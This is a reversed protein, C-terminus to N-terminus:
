WPRESMLQRGIKVVEAALLEFDDRRSRHNTIACRLAYRGRLTTSSIVAAGSEQVRLLLEENLANLQADDLGPASFRFCVINLELPAVLELHPSAEILSALYRAQEVNQEIVQAIKNVGHAKLAMWVKLARFGRTLQIGYEGFWTSGSALGRDGHALYAPTLAFTRHHAQPDRVLVCGVEFPLYVWKHLDFAVSDAREMGRVQSKLMPSVHALAGFAGDVHYWMGHDAAVDALEDLADVAGTNVTGACGVVCIPKFGEGVDQEIKRRLAAVDIRYRDDVPIRRLARNGLGLVEAARQLSSHMEESGYMTMPRPTAAVGQERVDFGCRDNRAVALGALNAMSGGSLLLGSAEPSYGLMQKCWEIVQLEVRNGAHNGGGMNPNVGSALMDALMALPTGNGMVWGWFRPHVNGMVYPLVFRQFEAYVEEAPRGEQPLPTEFTRAVDAPIPRWVPRERLTELYALMDDLM